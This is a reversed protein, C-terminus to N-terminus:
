KYIDRRHGVKIVLIIMEDDEMRYIIRYDGVRVRFRGNGNKLKKSDPPYPDIQLSDIRTAIRRQVEKPLKRFEKQATKLLEIRYRNV